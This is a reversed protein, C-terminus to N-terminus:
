NMQRIREDLIALAEHLATGSELLCLQLMIYDTNQELIKGALSMDLEGTQM